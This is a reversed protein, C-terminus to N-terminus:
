MEWEKYALKYRIINTLGYYITAPSLILSARFDLVDSFANALIGMNSDNTIIRIKGMSWNTSDTLANSM